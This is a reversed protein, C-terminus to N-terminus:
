RIIIPEVSQVYPIPIAMIKINTAINPAYSINIPSLYEHGYRVIPIHPIIFQCINDAKNITNMIPHRNITNKLLAMLSFLIFHKTYATNAVTGIHKYLIYVKRSTIIM